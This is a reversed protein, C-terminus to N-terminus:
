PQSVAKTQLYDGVYGVGRTGVGSRKYATHSVAWAPAGRFGNVLIAGADMRRALDTAREVDKGWIAGNLGYETANHLRVADEETDYTTVTLVPGFIEEQFVRSRPDVNVLVTPAVYYGAGFGAAPGGGLVATAGDARASELYGLVREYQRASVLPGMVVDPDRPDGFPIASLESVLLEVVERERKKPVLIRTKSFCVQGSFPLGERRIFEGFGALDADDLLVSASKGGLEATLPKLQRGLEEAIIRGAATSGTFSVKDVDPHSALAMGTSAGGTVVNFVGSPVGADRMADALVLTDLSTEPSPKAVVTCGATLAAKVKLALLVQPSNWPVIAAVVGIPEHRVLTRQGDVDLLEEVVFERAADAAGRYISPAGHINEQENWWRPSGNQLSVLEGIETAREVYADAIAELLSAREHGTTRRWDPLAARAAAVARDVDDANADAISGFQEGTTPDVLGIDSTSSSALFRDGIFQDRRDLVHPRHVQM